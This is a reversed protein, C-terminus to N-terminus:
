KKDEFQKTLAPGKIKNVSRPVADSTGVGGKGKNKYDFMQTFGYLDETVREMNKKELMALAKTFEALKKGSLQERAMDLLMATHHLCFGKSSEFAKRFDPEHFFMHIITASYRHMAYDLKDCVTCSEDQGNIADALRSIDAGLGKNGGIAAAARQMAPKEMEKDASEALKDMLLYLTKTRELIHTHTVLALGLRNQNDYLMAFHRRCFGKKNTEVRHDPIMLEGGLESEIYKNELPVYISCLPCEGDKHVADWVPITDIHYNM